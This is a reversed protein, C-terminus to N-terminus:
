GLKERYIVAEFASVFEYGFYRDNLIEHVDYVEGFEIKNLFSLAFDYDEQLWINLYENSVQYIVLDHAPYEAEITQFAFDSSIYERLRELCFERAILFNWNEEFYEGTNDVLLLQRMEKRARKSIKEIESCIKEKLKRIKEERIPKNSIKENM